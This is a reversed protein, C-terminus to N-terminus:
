ATQEDNRTEPPLLELIRGFPGPHGFMDHGQDNLKCAKRVLELAEVEKLAAEIALLLPPHKGMKGGEQGVAAWDAYEQDVYERLLDKQKDTM